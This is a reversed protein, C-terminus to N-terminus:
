AENNTIFYLKDYIIKMEEDLSENLLIEKMKSMFLEMAEIIHKRNINTISYDFILIFLQGAICLSEDDITYHHKVLGSCIDKVSKPFHNSKTFVLFLELLFRDGLQKAWGPIEYFLYAKGRNLYNLFLKVGNADKKCYNYFGDKYEDLTPRVIFHSKGNIITYPLFNSQKSIHKIYKIYMNPINENIIDSVYNHKIKSFSKNVMQLSNNSNIDFMGIQDAIQQATFRDVKVQRKRYSDCLYPINNLVTGTTFFLYEQENRFM